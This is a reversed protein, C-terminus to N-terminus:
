GGHDREVAGSRQLQRAALIRAQEFDAAVQSDLGDLLVSEPVLARRTGPRGISLYRPDLVSYVIEADAASGAFGTSSVSSPM